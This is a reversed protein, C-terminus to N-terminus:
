LMVDEEPSEDSLIDFTTTDLIIEFVTGQFNHKIVFIQEESGAKLVMMVDNSIVRLMGNSNQVITKLTDLGFGRNRPTSKTSFSNEFAKRLAVDSSVNQKGEQTLFQNVLTPIGLGFDCVAIKLKNGQSLIPL